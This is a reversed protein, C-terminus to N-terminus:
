ISPISSQNVQDNEDDPPNASILSDVIRKINENKDTIDVQFNMMLYCRLCIILDNYADHMNQLSKGFLHYHLEELKPWKYYKGKSNSKTIRCLPTGHVMTCYSQEKPKSIYNFTIDNRMYEYNLINIDFELNHAVIIDSMDLQENFENLVDKIDVGEALCRERTIHNISSVEPPIQIDDRIKIIENITKVVDNTTTDYTVSGLQLMYPCQDLHTFDRPIIGTTETDIVTIRM